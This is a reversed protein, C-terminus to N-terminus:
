VRITGVGRDLGADDTIVGHVLRDTDGVRIAVAIHGRSGSSGGCLSGIQHHQSGSTWCRQRGSM